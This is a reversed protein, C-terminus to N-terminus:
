GIVAPARELKRLGFIRTVITSTVRVDSVEFTGTLLMDDLESRTVTVIDGIQVATVHAPLRLRASERQLAQGAEDAIAGSEAPETVMCVGSYRLAGPTDEMLMTSPNYVRTDPARVSCLDPLKAAM